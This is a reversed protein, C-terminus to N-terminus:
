AAAHHFKILMVTSLVVFSIRHLASPQVQPRLDNSADDGGPSYPFLCQIVRASLAKYLNGRIIQFIWMKSNQSILKYRQFNMYKRSLSFWDGPSSEEQM